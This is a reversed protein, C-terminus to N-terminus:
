NLARLAHPARAQDPEAAARGIFIRLLQELTQFGLPRPLFASVGAQAADAVLEASVTTAIVVPVLSLRPTHRVIHLLEDGGMTRMRWNSIVLDYHRETLLQLGAAGHPAADILRCGLARLAHHTAVNSSPDDDVVLLRADSRRM